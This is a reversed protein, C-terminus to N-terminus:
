LLRCLRCQTYENITLYSQVIGVIPAALKYGILEVLLISSWRRISNLQTGNTIRITNGIDLSRSIINYKIWKRMINNSVDHLKRFDEMNDTHCYRIGDCEITPYHTMLKGQAYLSDVPNM